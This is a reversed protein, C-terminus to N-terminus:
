ESAGGSAPDVLVIRGAELAVARTCFEETVEDSEAALLLTMGAERLGDFWARLRNRGDSDESSLGSEILGLAPGRGLAAALELRRALRGSLQRVDREAPLGLREVLDDVLSDASEAAPGLSFELYERVSLSEVFRFNGSAFGVHQRAELPRLTVDTGAVEVRGATPRVLTALIRLLMSTGGSENRDVLGVAEGPQVTLDLQDLVRRDRYTKTLGEVIVTAM